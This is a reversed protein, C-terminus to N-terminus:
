KRNRVYDWEYLDDIRDLELIAAVNKATELSMRQDNTAWKNVLQRSVNLERALESQSIKAQRLRKDLLCKGVRYAM